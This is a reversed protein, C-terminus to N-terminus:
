RLPAQVTIYQILSRESVFRPLVSHQRIRALVTSVKGIIQDLLGETEKELSLIDARIEALTRLPQSKYFYPYCPRRM